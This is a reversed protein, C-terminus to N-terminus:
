DTGYRLAHSVTQELGGEPRYTITAAMGAAKLLPAPEAHVGRGDGGQVGACGDSIRGPPNEQYARAPEKGNTLSRSFHETAQKAEVDAGVEAFKDEGEGEGD